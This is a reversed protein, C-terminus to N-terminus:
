RAMRRKTVLLVGAGVLLISGVVYFVTTGIGGTSPLKTGQKNMVTVSTTTGVEVNQSDAKNYGVPAKTESLTYTAKDLGKIEVIGDADSVITTTTTTDKSDAVRYDWETADAAAPAKPDGKATKVFNIKTAGNTLEFEAGALPADNEDTKKLELNYTATTTNDTLKETTADQEVTVENPASNIAASTVEATYTIEVPISTAGNKYAYLSHNSDDVWKLEIVFKGGTTEDTNPTVTKTLNTTIVTGNVKVTIADAIRLNTYTDTITYKKVITSDPNHNAADNNGEGTVYNTANFTIKYEQTEGVIADDSEGGNVTKVLNSPKNPNKDKITVDPTATDVSVAAGLSSTVYYYGFQLGSFLVNGTADQYAGTTATGFLSVNAKLWTIVADDASAAKKAVSYKGDTAISSVDFPSGDARLAELLATKAEAVKYTVGSKDANPTAEFVMYAKYEAGRTANEVTITGTDGTAFATASLALVMVLALLLSALKKAHKM